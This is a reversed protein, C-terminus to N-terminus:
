WIAGLDRHGAVSRLYRYGQAAPQDFPPLLPIPERAYEGAAVDELVDLRRLCEADVDWVEGLISLGHEADLVMGPFGGMDYLRYRPETMASGVFTQRELYGHNSGGRKLTGYVFIRTTM